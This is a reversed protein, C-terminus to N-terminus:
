CPQVGRVNWINKLLPIPHKDRGCRVSFSLHHHLLQSYLFSITHLTNTWLGSNGHSHLSAPQHPPESLTNGDNRLSFIFLNLPEIWGQPRRMKGREEAGLQLLHPLVLYSWLFIHPAQSLSVRVGVPQRQSHSTRCGVRMAKMETFLCLELTEQTTRKSRNLQLFNPRLLRAETANKWSGSIITFGLRLCAHCWLPRVGAQVGRRLHSSNRAAKSAPSRTWHIPRVCRCM